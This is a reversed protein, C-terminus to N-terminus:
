ESEEGEPFPQSPTDRNTQDVHDGYQNCLESLRAFFMEGEDPSLEPAIRREIAKLEYHATSRPIHTEVSIQELTPKPLTLYVYLINRQRDTLMEFVDEAIMQASVQVELDGPAEVSDGYVIDSAGITIIIDDFSVEDVDFLNLRYRLAEMLLTLDVRHQLIRFTGKLLKLLDSDSIVHSIKKSDARYRIPPPLEIQRMANLVDDISQATGKDSWDNLGWLHTSRSVMGYSAFDSSERLIRKTRKFLNIYEDRRRENVLFLRLERRIANTLSQPSQLSMLYYELRGGNLLWVMTFRHSTANIADEDWVRNPSYRDPPYKKVMQETISTILGYLLEGIGEAEYERVYDGFTPKSM